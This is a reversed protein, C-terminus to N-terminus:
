GVRDVGGDRGATSAATSGRPRDFITLLRSFRGPREKTEKTHAPFGLLEAALDM